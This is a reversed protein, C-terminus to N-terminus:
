LLAEISRVMEPKSWDRHGFHKEVIVGRKDIIFTIPLSFVKYSRSVSLTADHLVSFSVPHEKVFEQVKARSTDVSVALVILGRQKMRQHLKEVSPMEDKCPPCWTAWFNLLVTNGKFSSLSVQNGSLDKLTFEPAKQGSLREIEFPSPPQALVAPTLPSFGSAVVCFSAFIILSRTREQVRDGMSRCDDQAERKTM